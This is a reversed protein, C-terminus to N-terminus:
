RRKMPEALGNSWAEWAKVKAATAVDAHRIAAEKPTALRYRPPKRGVSAAPKVHHVHHSPSMVPTRVAPDNSRTQHRGSGVAEPDRKSSCTNMPTIATVTRTMAATRLSRRAECSARETVWRWTLATISFM